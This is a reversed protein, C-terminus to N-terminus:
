KVTTIKVVHVKFYEQPLSHGQGLEERAWAKLTGAHVSEALDSSVGLDTLLEQANEAQNRAGRGFKATLAMKILDGHGNKDLWSYANLKAPAPISCQVSDKVAVQQGTSLTIKEFGLNSMLQPITDQNLLREHRKLEKMAIEADQIEKQKALLANVASGLTGMQEDTVQKDLPDSVTLEDIISRTHTTM